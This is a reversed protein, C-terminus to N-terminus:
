PQGGIARLVARISDQVIGAVEPMLEQVTPWAPGREQGGESWYAEALRKLEEDRPEAFYAALADAAALMEQGDDEGCDDAIIHANARLLRNANRVPSM